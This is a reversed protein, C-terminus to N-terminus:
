HSHWGAQPETCSSTGGSDPTPAFSMEGAAAYLPVHRGRRRWERRLCIRVSGPSSTWWFRRRFSPFSLIRCQLKLPPQARSSWKWAFAHGRIDQRLQHSWTSFCCCRHIHQTFTSLASTMSLSRLVKCGSPRLLLLYDSPTSRPRISHTRQDTIFSTLSILWRM